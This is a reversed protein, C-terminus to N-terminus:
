MAIRNMWPRSMATALLVTGVVAISSLTVNPISGSATINRDAPVVLADPDSSAPAATPITPNASSVSSTASLQDASSSSGDSVCLASLSV